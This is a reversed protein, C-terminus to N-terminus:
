VVRGPTRDAGIHVLVNAVVRVTRAKRLDRWHGLQISVAESTRTVAPQATWHITGIEAPEPAKVLRKWRVPDGSSAWESVAKCPDTENPGKFAGFLRLCYIGPFQSVFEFLPWPFSRVSECDNELLLVWDAHRAAAQDFLARRVAIVGMRVSTQVVTRFGAAKALNHNDLDRSADDGHLLLFRAPDNFAVFSALTRATLEPRDCTQLCLAIM